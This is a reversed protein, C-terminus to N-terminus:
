TALAIAVIVIVLAIVAMIIMAKKTNAPQSNATEGSTEDTNTRPSTAQAHSTPKPGSLYFTQRIVTSLPQPTPIHFTRDKEEDTLTSLTLGFLIDEETPGIPPLQVTYGEPIKAETEPDEKKDEKKDEQADTAADDLQAAFEDPQSLELTPAESTSEA